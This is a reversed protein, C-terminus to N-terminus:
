YFFIFRTVTSAKDIFSLLPINYNGVVYAEKCLSRNRIPKLPKERLTM